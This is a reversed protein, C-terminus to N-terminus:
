QSTTQARVLGYYVGRMRMLDEHSGREAIQGDKVVAIVDAQRITRAPLERALKPVAELDLRFGLQRCPGARSTAFSSITNTHRM